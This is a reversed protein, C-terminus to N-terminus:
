NAATVAELNIEIKVNEGVMVGGTELAMNWSLGFDKRNITTTATLGARRMGFPDKAVQGAYEADFVVEKTTDRITLDGVIKYENDGKSKVQKSKFTIVPYKEADFFDAGRLHADRKEDRTNLSAVDAEAEVWSNEPHAEDIELSGKFVHFNGSAKSIMM